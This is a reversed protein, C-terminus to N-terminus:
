QNEELIARAKNTIFDVQSDTLEAHMPMSIECAYYGEAQPCLGRAYEDEPFAPHWYAPMYNVQVGIGSEKLCIFINRRQERPVLLPYLHWMVSGNSFPPPTTCGPLDAFAADYTQKIAERRNKFMDLRRLQSSGLAALIDPLRYNLGFAQVEQHWPGDADLTFRNPDRILGQRAFTAVRRLLEPDRTSVAGGEGTTINKTPFFSFTTMDAIAGVPTGDVTSGLSHAADEIVIAGVSGAVERLTGIEAPRGAFDVATIARTRESILQAASDVSINGTMPDVDAFLVRAGLQAATAATAVFTIPSTIVEDGPRLNLAAYAAHLAATGSSVAVVPSGGTVLSLNREFEEVAPGTTLWESGLVDAVAEVDDSNISQRGYPIM